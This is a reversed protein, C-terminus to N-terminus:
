YYRNLDSKNTILDYYCLGRLKQKFKEVVQWAKMKIYKTCHIAM